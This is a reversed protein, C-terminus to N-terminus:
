VITIYTDDDTAFDLYEIDTATTDTGTDLFLLKTPDSQEGNKEFGPEEGDPFDPDQDHTDITKFTGTIVVDEDIDAIEPISMDWTYTSYIYQPQPYEMKEVFVDKRISNDEEWYIKSGSRITYVRLVEGTDSRVFSVQKDKVYVAYVSADKSVTFTQGSQYENGDYKWCKFRYKTGENEDYSPAAGFTFVYGEDYTTEKAVTEDFRNGYEDVVVPCTIVYTRVRAPTISESAHRVVFFLNTNLEVFELLIDSNKPVAALADSDYSKFAYSSGFSFIISNSTSNIVYLYFHRQQGEDCSKILVGVNKKPRSIVLTNSSLTISEADKADYISAV